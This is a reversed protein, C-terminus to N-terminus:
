AEKWSSCVAIWIVVHKSERLKAKWVVADSDLEVLSLTFDDPKEFYVEIYSKLKLLSGDVFEIEQLVAINKLCVKM